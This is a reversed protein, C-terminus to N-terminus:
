VRNPAQQFLETIWWSERLPVMPCVWESPAFWWSFSALDHQRDYFNRLQTIPSKPDKPHKMAGCKCWMHLMNAANARKNGRKTSYFSPMEDQCTGSQCSQFESNWTRGMCYGRESALARKPFLFPRFPQFPRFPRFPQHNVNIKNTKNFSYSVSDITSNAVSLIRSHIVLTHPM